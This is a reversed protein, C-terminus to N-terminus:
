NVAPFQRKPQFGAKLWKIAGDAMARYARDSLFIQLFVIGALGPRYCGRMVAAAYMKLAAWRDSMAVSKAVAWGRCGYYAAAPIRPRMEELWPIMRSGKRGASTRGPDPIDKWVAGPEEAMAFSQGSLFLRIAFDTDEAARLDEHFRVRAATERPVVMTITPVFGRDSLLYTAMHEGPRIARPPKLFTRGDGRDVVVRAYGVTDRTGDLLARMAALHTPLYVDDSDLFAVFRGRAADIGANRAAGGGRNPQSLFRIRPDGVREVAEGPSDKSGDDVVVIEFDQCTQALVSTLAEGLVDARNYVPIIVSFFPATFFPSM